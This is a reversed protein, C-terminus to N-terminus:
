REAPPVGVRYAGAVHFVADSGHMLRTLDAVSSLDGTVVECGLETLDGARAPNRVIAVVADDRQRLRAVLARGIFGAGGTVVARM